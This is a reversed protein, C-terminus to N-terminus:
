ILCMLIIIEILSLYCIITAEVLVARGGRYDSNNRGIIIPHNHNDTFPVWQNHNNSNSSMNSWVSVYKMILTHRKTYESGGFSLLTIQNRHKNSDKDVLKVVCHGSLKVDSPYECIFKYENKITHYSYCARECILLEHKHVVCQSQFLPIPLEKLSQFFTKNQNGM